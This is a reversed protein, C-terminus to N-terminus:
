RIWVTLDGYSFLRFKQHIGWAYSEKVLDLDCFSAVLALLTSQPQHFNTLLRDVVRWDHGPYLFLRTEGFFNGDSGSTPSLLGRAVSELARTVTTGLGWVHRGQRRAEEVARWTAGPVSVWEAHMEHEALSETAIPLFTGLGVHLTLSCVQVGRARLADLDNATFHLSATPAALSGPNHAWATQYWEGDQRRCQREARAQQIYPPLPLQGFELFYSDTLPSGLIEVLQPRGKARLIMERDGPLRVGQNLKLHRSPFLVQWQQPKTETLFLIELDGAFVRRPLVKTDNIVLVDGAKIEACIEEITREEQSRANVDVRMVRSPRAPETAILEPPFSFELDTRRLPSPEQSQM